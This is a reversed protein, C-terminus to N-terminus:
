GVLFCLRENAKDKPNPPSAGEMWISPSRPSPKGTGPVLKKKDCFKQNQARDLGFSLLKAGASRDKPNSLVLFPQSAAV